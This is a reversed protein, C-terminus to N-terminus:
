KFLAKLSSKFLFFHKNLTSFVHGFLQKPVSLSPYDNVQKPDMKFTWVHGHYHGGQLALAGGGPVPCWMRDLM